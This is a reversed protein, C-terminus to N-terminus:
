SMVEMFFGRVDERCHLTDSPKVSRNSDPLQKLNIVDWVPYQDIFFRTFIHFIKCNICRPSGM